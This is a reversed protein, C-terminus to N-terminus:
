WAKRSPAPRRLWSVWRSSPSMKQAAAARKWRECGASPAAVRLSPPPASRLVDRCVAAINRAASHNQIPMLRKLDDVDFYSHIEKGLALGVFVTSSYQTILVDCNAIM